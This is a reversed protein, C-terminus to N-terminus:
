PQRPVDPRVPLLPGDANDLRVARLARAAEVIAEVATRVAALEESTLRNGYRDRVLAFLLEAESRAPQSVPSDETPMAGM